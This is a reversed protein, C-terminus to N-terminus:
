INLGKGAGEWVANLILVGNKLRGLLYYRLLM